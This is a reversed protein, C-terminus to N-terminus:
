TRRKFTTKSWNTTRNAIIKIESERILLLLLNLNRVSKIGRHILHRTLQSEELNIKKGSQNARSM